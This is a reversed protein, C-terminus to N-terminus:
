LYSKGFIKSFNLDPYNYEFAKQGQQKLKTDLIKNFYVGSKSMDYHRICLPVVLGYYISLQKYVGGFLEYKHIDTYTGCVLCREFDKTIISKKIHSVNVAGKNIIQFM